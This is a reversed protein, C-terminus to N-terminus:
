SSLVDSPIPFTLIGLMQATVLQLLAEIQQVYRGGVVVTTLADSTFQSGDPYTTVTM